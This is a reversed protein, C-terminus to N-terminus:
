ISKLKAYYFGDFSNQQPFLQIGYSTNNTGSITIKEVNVQKNEALFKAIVHDNEQPLISCTAYILSGGSKLLPWLAQLLELQTKQLQQIDTPRRLVKIDPHRRIVGTASCPADLLIRDFLKGDWWSKTHAADACILNIQSSALLQLRNLNEKIRLIRKEEIDIAVLQELNKETELIHATKGGPAACADLIRQGPALELLQAAFQAAEDQVSFLGDAFGPLQTINQASELTIGFNSIQTPQAAINQQKLLELYKERSVKRQNIRLTLPPHENNNTLIPQWQEPWAQQIIELLWQPYSFNAAPNKEIETRISNEKRQWQRLVANLLGTAWSKNLERAAQVTEYIAAHPKTQLHILQYLGILLLIEVIKEQPKLPKEVLLNLIAKLQEHWRLTGYCLEQVFGHDKQNPFQSLQESLVSNLSRNNQIIELITKAAVARASINKKM